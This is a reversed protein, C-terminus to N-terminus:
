SKAPTQPPTQPAPASVLPQVSAIFNTLARAMAEHSLGPTNAVV